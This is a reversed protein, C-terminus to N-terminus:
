WHEIYWRGDIKILRASDGSSKGNYQADVEKKDGQDKIIKLTIKNINVESLPVGWKDRLWKNAENLPDDPIKDRMKQRIDPAIAEVILKKDNFKYGEIAAQMVSIPSEHIDKPAEISVGNGDISKIDSAFIPFHILLLLTVHLIAKIM